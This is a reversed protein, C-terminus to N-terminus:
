YSYFSFNQQKLLDIQDSIECDHWGYTFVLAWILRVGCLLLREM